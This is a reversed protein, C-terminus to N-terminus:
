KTGYNISFFLNNSIVKDTNYAYGVGFDIQNTVYFRMEPTIMLIRPDPLIGKKDTYYLDYQTTNMVYLYSGSVRFALNGVMDTKIDREKKSETAGRAEMLPILYRIDFTSQFVPILLEQGARRVPTNIVKVGFRFDTQLGKVDRVSPDKGYAFYATKSLSFNFLGAFQRTLDNSVYEVTDVPAVTPVSNFLYLDWYNSGGKGLSFGLHYTETSIKPATGAYGSSFGGFFNSVKKKPEPTLEKNPTKDATVPSKIEVATSDTELTPTELKVATSDTQALVTEGFLFMAITIMMIHALRNM